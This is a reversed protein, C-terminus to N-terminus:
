HTRNSHIRNAGQGPLHCHNGPRAPANARSDRKLQRAEACSSDQASASTRSKFRRRVRYSLCATLSVHNGAIHGTKLRDLCRGRMDFSREPADVDQDIICADASEAARQM